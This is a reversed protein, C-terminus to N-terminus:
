LSGARLFVQGQRRHATVFASERGKARGEQSVDASTARHGYRSNIVDLQGHGAATFLRRAAKVTANEPQGLHGLRRIKGGTATTPKLATRQLQVEPDLSIKTWGLFSMRCKQDCIEGIKKFRQRDCAEFHPAIWLGNSAAIAGKGGVGESITDLEDRGGIFRKGLGAASRVRRNVAARKSVGLM